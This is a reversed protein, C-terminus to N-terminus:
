LLMHSAFKGLNLLRKVNVDDGTLAAQKLADGLQEYHKHLFERDDILDQPM